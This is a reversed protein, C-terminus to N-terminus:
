LIFKYFMAEGSMVPKRTLNQFALNKQFKTFNKRAAIRSALGPNGDTQHVKSLAMTLYAVNKNVCPTM